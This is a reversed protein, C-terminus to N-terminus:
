LIITIVFIVLIAKGKHIYNQEYDTHKCKNQMNIMFRFWFKPRLM